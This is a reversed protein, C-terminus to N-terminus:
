TAGQYSLGAVKGSIKGNIAIHTLALLQPALPLLHNSHCCKRGDVHRVSVRRFHSENISLPESQSTANGLALGYLTLNVRAPYRYRYSQAM